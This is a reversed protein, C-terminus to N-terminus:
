HREIQGHSFIDIDFSHDFFLPWLEQKYVSRM